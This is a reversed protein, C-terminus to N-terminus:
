RKSIGENEPIRHPDPFQAECGLFCHWVVHRTSCCFIVFYHLCISIIRLTCQKPLSLPRYWIVYLQLYWINMYFYMGINKFKGSASLVSTIQTSAQKCLTDFNQASNFLCSTMKETTLFGTNRTFYYFYIWRSLYPFSDFNLLLNNILNFYSPVHTWWNYQCGKKDVNIITKM